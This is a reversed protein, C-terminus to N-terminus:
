DDNYDIENEDVEELDFYGTENEDVISEIESTDDYDSKEKSSSESYESENDSGNENDTEENDSVVIFNSKQKVNKKTPTAKKTVMKEIKPLLAPDIFHIVSQKIKEEIVCKEKTFFIRDHYEQYTEKHSVRLFGTTSPFYFTKRPERKLETKVLVDIEQLVTSFNTAFLSSFLQKLREETSVNQVVKQKIKEIEKPFVPKTDQFAFIMECSKKKNLVWKKTKLDFEHSCVACKAIYMNTSTNQWKFFKKNCECEDLDNYEKKSIFNM